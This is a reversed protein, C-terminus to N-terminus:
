LIVKNYKKRNDERWLPQLNSFHFCEKQQKPDTLDFSTCPIIHDIEWERRNNWSMGPEFKSELYERCEQVSCGLLEITKYAKTGYQATIASGIRNRLQVKIMLEPDNKIKKHYYKKAYEFIKDKNNLYYEKQRVNIEDFHEQRYTKSYDKCHETNNLYYNQNMEKCKEKNDKKYQINATNVCLKCHPRLGDKKSSQKHFETIPKEIKCKSCIKHTVLNM